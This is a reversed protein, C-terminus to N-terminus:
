SLLDVLKMIQNYHGQIISPDRFNKSFEVLQGLVKVISEKTPNNYDGGTKTFAEVILDACYKRVSKPDEEGLGSDACHAEYFCEVIADRVALPTVKDDLCVGYVCNAPM